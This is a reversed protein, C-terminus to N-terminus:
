RVATECAWSVNSAASCSRGVRGRGGEWDRYAEADWRAELLWCARVLARSLGQYESELHHVDGAHVAQHQDRDRM